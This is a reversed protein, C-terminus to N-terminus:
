WNVVAKNFIDEVLAENIQVILAEEVSSLAASSEYDQYQTFVNEYSHEPEKKNTFKVKVKVTLRNLAATQDGQIAIPATTYGQIFGEFVLDGNSEVLELNTQSVFKDKLADTFYQSLTPNVLKARNPFYKIEVTKVEPSISAGTFSYVGCAPIILVSLLIVLISLVKKKILLIGTM